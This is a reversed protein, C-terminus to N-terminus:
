HGGCKNNKLRDIKKKLLAQQLKVAIPITLEDMLSAFISQM